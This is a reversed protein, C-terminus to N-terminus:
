KDDKSGFMGSLLKDRLRELRDIATQVPAQDEFALGRKIDRLKAAMKRVAIETHKLKKGTQTAADVAKESYSVVDDVAARAEDTKGTTYLQDAAALRREAIEAYIQPRDQLRVSEARAILQEVTEEKRAFADASAALVLALVIAWTRMARM